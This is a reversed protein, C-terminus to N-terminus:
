SGGGHGGTGLVFVANAQPGDPCHPCVANCPASGAQSLRADFAILVAAGQQALAANASDFTKMVALTARAPFAHGAV